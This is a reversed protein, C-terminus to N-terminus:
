RGSAVRTLSGAIDPRLVYVDTGPDTMGLTQPKASLVVPSDPVLTGTTYINVNWAAGSDPWSLSGLATTLGSSMNFSKLNCHDSNPTGPAVECWLL